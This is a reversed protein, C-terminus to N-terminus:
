QLKLLTRFRNKNQNKPIAQYKHNKLFLNKQLHDPGKLISIYDMHDQGIFQCHSETRTVLPWM